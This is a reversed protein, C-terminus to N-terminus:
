QFLVSAYKFEICIFCCADYMISVEFFDQSDPDTDPSPTSVTLTAILDFSRQSFDAGSRTACNLETGILATLYM